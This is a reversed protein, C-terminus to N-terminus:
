PAAKIWAHVTNRVSLSNKGTGPLILWGGDRRKLCVSGGDVKASEFDARPYSRKRVLSVVHIADEELIIRSAMVDAFGVLGFLIMAVGGAHILPNTSLFFNLTGMVCFLLTAIASVIKYWGAMRFERPLTLTM